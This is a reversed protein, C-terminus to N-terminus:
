RAHVSRLGVRNEDDWKQQMFVLLRKESRPFTYHGQSSKLSQLECDESGHHTIDVSEIPNQKRLM